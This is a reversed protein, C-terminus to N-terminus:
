SKKMCLYTIYYLFVNFYVHSQMEHSEEDFILILWKVVQQRHNIKFEKERNRRLNELQYWMTRCYIENEPKFEIYFTVLSETRRNHKSNKNKQAYLSHFNSSSKFDVVRIPNWHFLNILYILSGEMVQSQMQCSSM